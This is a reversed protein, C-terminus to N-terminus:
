GHACLYRHAAGPHPLEEVPQDRDRERADAVEATEGRRAEVTAAVIRDANPLLDDERFHVVVVHLGHAAEVDCDRRRRVRVFLGEREQALEAEREASLSLLFTQRLLTQDRLCGARLLVLRPLVRAAVAAATRARDVALEAQAPDAEAVEGLLADDGTHRLRAPLPLLFISVSGTASMSARRFFAFLASCSVT